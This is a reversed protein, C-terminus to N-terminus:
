ALMDKLEDSGHQMYVDNVDMGVPLSIRKSRSVSKGIAKALENGADDADTMILVEPGDLLTAWHPNKDWTQAGPVGVCAMGTVKAITIVDIEGECVVVRYAGDKLSMANFLKPTANPMSLYKPQSDDLARFRLDRVKRDGTVYPIVLRGKYQEHGPLPTGCYGLGFRRADAASLGRTALYDLCDPVFERYYEAEKNWSMSGM